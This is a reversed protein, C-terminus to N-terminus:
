KDPNKRNSVRALEAAIESAIREPTATETEVMLDACGRYVGERQALMQRIEQLGGQATLNPRREATSPDGELRQWITEPSATLWVVYGHALVARTEPRMVAGGGVALVLKDRRALDAIVQAELDRFAAEGQEQFIAAISRGARWEIEVDADVWEWGLRLALQRAVTTKGTGRYGILVVLM